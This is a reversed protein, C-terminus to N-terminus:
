EEVIELSPVYATHYEGNDDILDAFYGYKEYGDLRGEIPGSANEGKYRAGLVFAPSKDAKETILVNIPYERTFGHQRSWIIYHPAFHGTIQGHYHGGKGLVKVKDGIQGKHM